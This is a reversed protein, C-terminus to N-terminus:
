RESVILFKGVFTITIEAIFWSSVFKAPIIEVGQSVDDVAVHAIPASCRFIVRAGVISFGFIGTRSCFHAKVWPLVGRPPSDASSLEVNLVDIANGVHRAFFLLASFTFGVHDHCTM